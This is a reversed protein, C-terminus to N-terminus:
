FILYNIYGSVPGSNPEIGMLKLNDSISGWSLVIGLELVLLIFPLLKLRKKLLFEKM